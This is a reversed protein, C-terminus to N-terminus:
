GMSTGSEFTLPTASCDPVASNAKITVDEYHEAARQNRAVIYERRGRSGSKEIRINAWHWGRMDRLPPWYITRVIPPSVRVGQTRGDVQFGLDIDTAAPFHVASYVAGRDASKASNSEPCSRNIM